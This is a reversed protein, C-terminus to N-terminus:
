PLCPPTKWVVIDIATIVIGMRVMTRVTINGGDDNDDNKVPYSYCYSIRIITNTITKENNVNSCHFAQIKSSQTDDNSHNTSNKTTVHHVGISEILTSM